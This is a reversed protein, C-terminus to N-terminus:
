PFFESVTCMLTLVRALLHSQLVFHTRFINQFKLNRNTVGMQLQELFIVIILIILTTGCTDFYMRTLIQGGFWSRVLEREAEREGEERERESLSPSPSPSFAHSLPSPCLNLPVFRGLVFYFFFSAHESPELLLPLGFM